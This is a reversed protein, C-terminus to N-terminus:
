LNPKIAFFGYNICNRATLKTLSPNWAEVETYIFEASKRPTACCLSLTLSTKPCGITGGKPTFCNFDEQVAQRCSWVLSCFTGSAVSGPMEPPGSSRTAVILRVVSVNIKMEWVIFTSRNLNWQLIKMPTLIILSIGPKTALPVSQIIRLM